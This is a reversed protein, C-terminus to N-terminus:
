VAGARADFARRLAPRDIKGNPNLPLETMHAFRRPVMHVPIRKRLWLMLDTPRQEEGTYCAVLETETAGEVPVVVAETVAPHRRVAAEIEGLEIRYGRLKIQNDLRGLHVLAGNEHRVRDGTRYYHGPTLDGEGRHIRAGSEPDYSLFRGANDSPDLYGDFRQSGRVCLEGEPAPRGEEDLVVHDLFDYVPGIPVTDNSTVPWQAPDHPLRFETCAVTLETPGYVNEIVAHPATERWLRAQQYTLQEGIFIGYRLGTALGPPLNGLAAAVSVVSPVSFWHTIGRQVVYDVPKMLETRQPVVLTAGAGWTVFVDFVSPDFTLDFTHSVRCGPGVEFREINHAIYPALNRHRIPVGKPRGTSGSTFLVYAVGDPATACPPLDGAPELAATEADTLRLVTASLDGGLVALQTAGSDDVVLAEIGALDCVSRNRAAPYGPNLPTVTAGLRLAALYGAFATLSRSALLAVRRPAAGHARVLAGAVADARRDLERYTVVSERVELAVADPSHRVSRRFWEYLTRDTM